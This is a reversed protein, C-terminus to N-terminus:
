RICSAYLRRMQICLSLIVDLSPPVILRLVYVYANPQSRLLIAHSLILLRFMMFSMSIASRPLKLDIQLFEKIKRENRKSKLNIYGLHQSPFSLSFFPWGLARSSLLGEVVGM